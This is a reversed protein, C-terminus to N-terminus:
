EDTAGEEGPFPEEQEPCGGAVCCGLQNCRFACGPSPGLTKAHLVRARGVRRGREPQPVAEEDVLVSFSETSVTRLSEVELQLTAAWVDGHTGIASYTHITAGGSPRHCVAFEQGLYIQSATEPAAVRVVSDARALYLAVILGGRGPSAVLRDPIADGDFDLTGIVAGNFRARNIVSAMSDFRAAALVPAATGDIFDSFLGYATDPREELANADRFGRPKSASQGTEEAESQAHGAGASTNSSCGAALLACLISILVSPAVVM